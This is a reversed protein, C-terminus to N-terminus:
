KPVKITGNQIGQQIEADTADEWGKKARVANFIANPSPATPAATPAKGKSTVTNVYTQLGKVTNVKMDKLDKLAGEVGANSNKDLGSMIMDYARQADGETQTGKAAMLIANAERAVFRRLEAQKLANETPSGIINSVGAGLTSSPGFTVTPNKPNVKTIWSDIEANSSSLNSINQEATAVKELAGGTLGKDVLELDAPNRSNKYLALSAPTFKGSAIMTNMNEGSKQAITAQSLQMKQAAAVAQQAENPYGAKIAAQAAQMLGEPTTTDYQSAIQKLESAKKLAPDQMGLMNGVGTGIQSAGKYIGYQAREMPTMSAFNSAQKELMLQQQQQYQLPDVGFMGQVIEAM